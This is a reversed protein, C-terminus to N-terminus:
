LRSIVANINDIWKDITHNEITYLYWTRQPQVIQFSSKSTKVVRSSSELIVTGRHLTENKYYKIEGNGTLM